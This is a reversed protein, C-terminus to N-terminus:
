KTENEESFQLNKPLYSRTDIKQYCLHPEQVNPYGYSLNEIRSYDAHFCNSPQIALLKLDGTIQSEKPLIPPVRPILGREMRRYDFLCCMLYPGFNAEKVKVKWTLPNFDLKCSFEVSRRYRVHTPKYGGKQWRMVYKGSLHHELTVIMGEKFHQEQWIKIAVERLLEKLHIWDSPWSYITNIPIRIHRLGKYFYFTLIAL